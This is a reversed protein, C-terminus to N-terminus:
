SEGKLAVVPEVHLAARAAISSGLLVFVTAAVIAGAFTIFDTPPVEYLVGALSRAAFLAVLGGGLVGAASWRLSDGVALRLVDAKRAGLALRVGFEQRRQRVGYSVVSYVGTGALVLAVAAFLSLVFVQFRRAAVARAVIAEFPRLNYVPQDPDISYV